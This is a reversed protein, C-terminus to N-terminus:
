QSIRRNLPKIVEMTKKKKRISSSPITLENRFKLLVMARNPRSEMLKRTSIRPLVLFRQRRLLRM